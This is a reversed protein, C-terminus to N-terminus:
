QPANSRERARSLDDRLKRIEATLDLVALGYGMEMAREVLAVSGPQNTQRCLEWSHDHFDRTTM